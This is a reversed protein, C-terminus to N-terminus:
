REYGKNLGQLVENTIDMKDKAYVINGYQTAAMIIDYGNSKGYRRIYDNVKGLVKSTLQKDAASIKNNIAQEYDLYQQQKSDILEEMLRRERAAIHDKKTQYEKVKAQMEGRLTDLNARWGIVQAEYEKRADQMGKYGNVLKQADVYAYSRQSSYHLFFLFAIAGLVTLWLIITLIGKQYM